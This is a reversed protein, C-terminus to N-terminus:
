FAKQINKYMSFLNNVTSTENERKTSKKIELINFVFLNIKLGDIYLVGFHETIHYVKFLYMFHFKMKKDNMDNQEVYYM